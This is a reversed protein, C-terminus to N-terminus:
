ERGCGGKKVGEWVRREENEGERRGCGEKGWERGREEWVRRGENEGLFWTHPIMVATARNLLNLCHSLSIM